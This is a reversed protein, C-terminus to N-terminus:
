YGWDVYDDLSKSDALHCTPLGEYQSRPAEWEYHSARVYNGDKDRGVLGYGDWPGPPDSVLALPKVIEWRHVYPLQRFDAHGFRKGDIKLVRAKPTSGEPRAAQPEVRPPQESTGKRLPCARRALTTAPHDCNKHSVM